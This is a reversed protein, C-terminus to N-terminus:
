LVNMDKRHSVVTRNSFPVMQETTDDYRARGQGDHYTTRTGACVVIGDPVITHIVLSM